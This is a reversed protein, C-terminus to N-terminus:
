SGTTNGYFGRRLDVCMYNYTNDLHVTTVLHQDASVMPESENMYEGRLFFPFFTAWDIGIVPNATDGDLQFVTQWRLKRFMVRGDKSAVDDGLNDNQKELIKEVPGLTAYNSYFGKEAGTSYDPVDTPSEFDTYTAAKRMKTILDDKSVTTYQFTWNRWNAYTTPSLGAKDSFGSPALGYMGETASPTYYYKVGRAVRADSASPTGWFEQEMLKVQDIMASNRRTKILEVIRAPERNMNVERRDISFNTTMHTWPATIVQMTEGVNKVDPAYMGTKRAQGTSSVQINRQIQSGSEFMVKKQKIINKAVHYKPLDYSIDTWKGRGLDALTTKMLDAMASANLTPM